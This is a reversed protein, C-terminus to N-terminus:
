AQVMRNERLLAIEARLTKIQENQKAMMEFFSRQMEKLKDVESTDMMVATELTLPKGCYCIDRDNSNPRQCSPCIQPLNVQLEETEPEIGYSKLFSDNSNKSSLHTYKALVVSRPSWGHRSRTDADSLKTARRTVETHRFLYLNLPRIEARKCVSKLMKNASAYSMQDGQNTNGTNVFLPADLDHANPHVNLWDALSTVSEIIRVERAGTKSDDKILLTYGNKDSKVNKIQLELIEHPRTGADYLVDILAIDRISNCAKILKKKEEPTILDETSVSDSIKGIRIRRTEDPNIYGLELQCDKATRYGTKIFRWWQQLVKKNDSTTNTEQGDKSYKAMVKAVLEKIGDTDLEHWNQGDLLRTMALISNTLKAKRGAKLGDITMSQDFRKLIENDKESLLKVLKLKSAEYYKSAIVSRTALQTAGEGM